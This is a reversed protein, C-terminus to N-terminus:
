SPLGLALERGLRVSESIGRDEPYYFCTDAIRLGAVATQVPPIMQSFEVECVPQAHSLRGVRAALLDEPLIQRNLKALYGMSEDIFAQDSAAFKPHSTPMYFPVYVVTDAVPRLNSFEVIGPIEMEGDCINIWFHPSVNRKLKLLVCVVGINKIAAYRNLAATGLGPMLRPILPTPVTSLVADFAEEGSASRVAGLAGEEIVVETVPEGLRITGGSKEIASVLAKVLTDSGGELYGLEEQFLSKRSTGLRKIRSWIWAASVEDAYEFFKLRFLPEWLTDWARRGCTKIFWDRASIGDLAQWNRRKTALFMTIGFRMKELFSLYPFKLLGIPDGWRHHEGNIFYGMSTERWRLLHGIGLDQCLQFTPSDARCIFHYFREISLGDFDLHAAMGGAESGAEFVTVNHGQRLAEYAAALGMAGAGLVAVKAM